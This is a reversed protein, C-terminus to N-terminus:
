KKKKKTDIEPYIEKELMDLFKLWKKKFVTASDFESVVWDRCAKSMKRGSKSFVKEMNQYISEVSPNAIYGGLASFRKYEVDCLFGTKGDIVLDSMATFDTTIAPVGCAQAEIIPVGFGENTSPCLLCDFSNYIKYMDKRGIGYLQTYPPVCYIEGEIGLYKAYAKINFGGAQELLTHFYIGTKPHKERFKMYADMVRQFSKRPPNDKNASVMGFLFIDEPIGLEKRIEKKDVPKFLKTDVTHQIYTSHMGQKKLEKQGFPAYSVIRYAMKLRELISPPIPDHDVPVIPIWRPLKKLMNPDVVWLDQLTFVVDAKFAKSHEVMADSGWKCGIQPFCKVGNYDIIGGQLGYFASVATPYGAKVLRPLLDAMQQGYGSTTWPANSSFLIRLKKKM